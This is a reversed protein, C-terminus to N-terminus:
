NRTNSYNKEAWKVAYSCTFKPTRGQVKIQEIAMEMLKAAMGKGRLSDDVFTHTINAVGQKDAPFAIEALVKGSDDAYYIRNNEHKFIM